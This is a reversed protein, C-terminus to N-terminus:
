ADVKEYTAEFIDNKCPYLEGKIGRIIWDGIDAKMTGELTKILCFSDIKQLMEVKESMVADWFWKPADKFNSVFFHLEKLRFAEIEVPKKRWTFTKNAEAM